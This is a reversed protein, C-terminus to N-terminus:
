FFKWQLQQKGVTELYFRSDSYLSCNHIHIHSLSFKLFANVMTTKQSVFMQEVEKAKSYGLVQREM